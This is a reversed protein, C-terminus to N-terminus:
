QQLLIVNNKGERNELMKYYGFAIHGHHAHLMDVFNGWPDRKKVIYM